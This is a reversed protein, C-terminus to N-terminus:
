GERALSALDIQRAIQKWMTLLRQASSEDYDLSQHVAVGRLVALLLRVFTADRENEIVGGLLAVAKTDRRVVWADNVERLARGLENDQRAAMMLEVAGIYHPTSFINEWLADTLEEASLRGPDHQAGLPFRDGWVDVLHQFAAVLLDNRMPFQHTLAGRSVDAKQAILTTSIREYGVEVLAELTAECVRRRTEASREAQTRRVPRMEPAARILDSPPVDHDNM